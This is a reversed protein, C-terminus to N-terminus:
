IVNNVECCGTSINAVNDHRTKYETGVLQTCGSILHKVIEPQSNCLRCQPTSSNTFVNQLARMHLAQDQTALPFGETQLSLDGKTLWYVGAVEDLNRGRSRVLLLQLVPM